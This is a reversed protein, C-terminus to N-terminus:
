ETVCVEFLPADDDVTGDGCEQEASFPFGGNSRICFMFPDCDASYFDFTGNIYDTQSTSPGTDVYIQIESTGEGTNLNSRCIFIVNFELGNPCPRAERGEWKVECEDLENIIIGMFELEVVLGDMCACRPTSNLMTFTAFLSTEPYVGNCCTACTECCCKKKWWWGTGSM